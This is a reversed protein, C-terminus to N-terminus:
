DAFVFSYDVLEARSLDKASVMLQFPQIGQHISPCPCAFGGMSQFWDRDLRHCRCVSHDQADSDGM